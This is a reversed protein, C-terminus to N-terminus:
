EVEDESLFEDTFGLERMCYQEISKDLFLIVCVAAYAVALLILGALVNYSGTFEPHMGEPSITWSIDAIISKICMIINMGCLIKMIKLSKENSRMFTWTLIIEFPFLVMSTVGFDLLIYIASLVIFVTGLVAARKMGKRGLALEQESREYFFTIDAKHKKKKPSSKEKYAEIARERAMAKLRGSAKYDVEPSPAEAPNNEMDTINQVEVGSMDEDPLHKASTGSIDGLTMPISEDAKPLPPLEFDDKSDFPNM